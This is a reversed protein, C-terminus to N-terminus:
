GEDSRYRLEKNRWPTYEKERKRDIIRTAYLNKKGWLGFFRGFRGQVEIYDGDELPPPFRFSRNFWVHYSKGSEGFLDFSVDFTLVTSDRARKRSFTQFPNTSINQVVGSLITKM